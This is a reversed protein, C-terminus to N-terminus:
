YLLALPRAFHKQAGAAGIEHNLEILLEPFRDDYRRRVPSTTSCRNRAETSDSLQHEGM